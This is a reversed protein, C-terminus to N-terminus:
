HHSGQHHDTGDGHVGTDAIKAAVGRFFWLVGLLLLFSVMALGGFALPSMPLERLHEETSAFVHSLSSSM